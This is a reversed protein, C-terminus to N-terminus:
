SQCRPWKYEGGTSSFFGSAGFDANQPSRPKSLCRVSRLFGSLDRATGKEDGLLAPPQKSLGPLRSPGQLQIHELVAGFVLLNRLSSVTYGDQHILNNIRKIQMVDFESYIRNNTSPERRPKIFGEKEYERIRKQSLSVKHSVENIRMMTDAEPQRNM